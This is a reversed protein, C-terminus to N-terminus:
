PQWAYVDTVTGDENHRNETLTMGAKLLVRESARNDPYITAIIRSLQFTEAGYALMAKVAETALGQSWYAPLLAYKIETEEQGGPHVLGCFGIIEGTERLVLTSMGYGRLAYNKHTVEVWYVCHERELPKGDGVWRMVEADGYVAYLADVDEAVIKRCLIRDTEFLLDSM